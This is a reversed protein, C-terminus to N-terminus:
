SSDGKTYLWYREGLDPRYEFLDAGEPLDNPGGLPYQPHLPTSNCLEQYPIMEDEGEETEPEIFGHGFFTPQWGLRQLNALLDGRRAAWRFQGDDIVVTQGEDAM